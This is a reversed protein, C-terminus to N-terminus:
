KSPKSKSTLNPQINKKSLPKANDEELNAIVCNLTGIRRRAACRTEFSCVKVCKKTKDLEQRAQESVKTWANGEAIARTGLVNREIELLTEKVQLDHERTKEGRINHWSNYAEFDEYLDLLDYYWSEERLLAIRTTNIFGQFVPIKIPSLFIMNENEKLNNHANIMTTRVKVLEKRLNEKMKKAEHRNKNNERMKQIAIGFFVGFVTATFSILLSYVYSMHEGTWNNYFIDM